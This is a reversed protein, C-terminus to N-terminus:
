WLISQSGGIGSSVDRIEADFKSISRTQRLRTEGADYRARDDTGSTDPVRWNVSQKQLVNESVM